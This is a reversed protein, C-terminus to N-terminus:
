LWDGTIAMGGVFLAYAFAWLNALQVLHLLKPGRFRLFAYLVSALPLLYALLYPWAAWPRSTPALTWSVLAAVYLLAGLAGHASVLLRVGRRTEGVDLVFYAASISCMVLAPVLYFLPVM